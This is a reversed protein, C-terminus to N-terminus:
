LSNTPLLSISPLKQSLKPFLNQIDFLTFSLNTDDIFIIPRLFLSANELDNVYLLFLLPGLFSDKPVVCKM